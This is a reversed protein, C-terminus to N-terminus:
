SPWRKGEKENKPVLVLSSELTEGKHCLATEPLETSDFWILLNIFWKLM